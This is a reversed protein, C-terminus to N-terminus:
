YIYYVGDLRPNIQVESLSEKATLLCSAWKDLTQVVFWNLAPM